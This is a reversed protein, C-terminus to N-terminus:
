KIRRIFFPLRGDQRFPAAIYSAARVTLAVGALIGGTNTQFAVWHSDWRRDKNQHSGAIGNEIFVAIGFTFIAANHKM